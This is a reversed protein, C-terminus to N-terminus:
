FPKTMITNKKTRSIYHLIMERTLPYSSLEAQTSAAADRGARRDWHYIVPLEFNLLEEYAESLSDYYEYLACPMLKSSLKRFAYDVEQQPTIVTFVLQLTLIM